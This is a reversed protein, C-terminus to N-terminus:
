FNFLVWGLQELLYKRCYFERPPEDQEDESDWYGDDFGYVVQLFHGHASNGGMDDPNRLAEEWSDRLDDIVRLIKRCRYSEFDEAIYWSAAVAPDPMPLRVAREAENHSVCKAAREDATTSTPLPFAVVEIRDEQFNERGLRERRTLESIRRALLSAREATAHSTTDYIRIGFKPRHKEPEHTPPSNSYGDESDPVTELEPLPVSFAAFTPSDDHNPAPEVVVKIPLSRGGLRKRPAPLSIGQAHLKAQKEAKARYYLEEQKERMQIVEPPTSQLVIGLRRCIHCM